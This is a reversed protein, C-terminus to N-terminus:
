WAMNDGKHGWMKGGFEEKTARDIVKVMGTCSEQVTVPAQELGFARAGTNGMDTQCWGPSLVFATLKEEEGNMRKTLWHVAAKSTGYAANPMDLQNELWGAASGITVWKPNNAKLLLPLTAQYLWVVGYVNTDIHAQLDSIKLESVKPWVYSVGANAIVLDLHDIGQASLQKAAELPDSEVSADVKVIFLSSGAGTPLDSLNKSTVHTTDRNAAVVIHNPRALYRELLGRGLGRNAGSILITTPSM